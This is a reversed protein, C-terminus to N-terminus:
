QSSFKSRNADIEKMLDKLALRLSDGMAARMGQEIFTIQSGSYEPSDDTVVREFQREFLVKGNREISVSIATIGAIRAIFAGVVQSCFARIQTRLILPNANEVLDSEAFLGSDHLEKTLREQILQSATTTWLGDTSCGTWTTGAIPKDYYDPRIDVPTAIKISAAITSASKFGTTTEPFPFSAGPVRINARNCGVLTLPLLVFTFLRIAFRM